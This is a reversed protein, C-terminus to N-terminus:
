ALVGLIVSSAKFIGAVRAGVALDLTKCSENTIVAALAGGSDIEIVVESNVAGGQIRSVIGAMRNRASFKADADDVVLVISSAKIMAFAQAGPQLGLADTSEHTVTAVIKQGSTLELEIEDNIAGRKVQAVKGLFQNRASTKMHM